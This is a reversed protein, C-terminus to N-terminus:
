KKESLKNKIKKTNQKEKKEIKKAKFKGCNQMKSVVMGFWKSSFNECHRNKWFTCNECAVKMEDSM